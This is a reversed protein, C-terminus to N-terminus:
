IKVLIVASSVFSLSIARYKMEIPMAVAVAREGGGQQERPVAGEGGRLDAQRGGRIGRSDGAAERDRAETPNSDHTM